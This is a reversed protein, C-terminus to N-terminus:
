PLAYISCTQQSFFKYRIKDHSFVAILWGIILIADTLDSGDDLNLQATFAMLTTTPKSNTMKFRRLIDYIYKQESIFLGNTTKIVEVGIFYNLTGLDKLSFTESLVQWFKSILKNNNGTIILDDVYVLFNPYVSSQQMLITSLCHLMM